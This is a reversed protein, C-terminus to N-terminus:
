GPPLTAAIERIQDAHRVEHAATLEVWQYISLSGFLRHDAKVSGLAFGDGSSAAARVAGRALDLDDWAVAADFAGSPMMAERAERPDGRDAMRERVEALLPERALSEPGLGAARAEEIADAMRQAFFRNVLALHELVEAV